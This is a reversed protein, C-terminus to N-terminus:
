RHAPATSRGPTHSLTYPTEPLRGGPTGGHNHHTERPGSAATPASEDPWGGRRCSVAAVGRSHTRGPRLSPVAGAAAAPPPSRLKRPLREGGRGSGVFPLWPHI